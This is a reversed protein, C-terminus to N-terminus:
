EPLSWPTTDMKSRLWGVSGTAVRLTHRSVEGKVCSQSSTTLRTEWTYEIRCPPFILGQPRPPILLLLGFRLTSPLVCCYCKFHQLGWSGEAKAGRKGAAQYCAPKGLSQFSDERDSSVEQVDKKSIECHGLGALRFSSDNYSPCPVTVQTPESSLPCAFGCTTIDPALSPVMVMHSMRELLIARLMAMASGALSKAMTRRRQLGQHCEMSRCVRQM